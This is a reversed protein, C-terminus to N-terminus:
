KDYEAESIEKNDKNFYKVKDDVDDKFTGKKYNGNAKTLIGKGNKKDNLWEGTFSDGDTWTITGKGNYKSDKFAGKYVSGSAYTYIGSGLFEDKHMSGVYKGGDSYTYTGQGEMFGKSWQGQYTCGNSFTKLGIGDHENKIWEGDYSGGGKYSIKGKGSYNDDLFNGVYVHGNAQIYKGIGNFKYNEFNGEYSAGNDYKKTGFGSKTEGKFDNLLIETGQKSYYKIAVENGKKFTGKKYNGNVETLTGEGDYLDNQWDGSYSTGDTFKITGQGNRKNNKWNGEFVSGDTWIMKGIGEFNGNKFNGEYITGDQYTYKGLGHTVGNKLNGEYGESKMAQKLASYNNDYKNKNERFVIWVYYYDMAQAKQIKAWDTSTLSDFYNPYNELVWDVRNRLRNEFFDIWALYDKSNVAIKKNESLFYKKCADFMQEKDKSMFDYKAQAKLNFPNIIARCAGAMKLSQVPFKKSLYDFRDFLNKIESNGMLEFISKPYSASGVQNLFPETAGFYNSMIMFEVEELYDLKNPFKKKLLDLCKNASEPYRQGLWVM